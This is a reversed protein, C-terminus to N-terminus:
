PTSKILHILARIGRLLEQDESVKSVAKEFENCVRDVSDFYRRSESVFHSRIGELDEQLRQTQRKQELSKEEMGQQLDSLKYELSDLRQLVEQRRFEPIECRDSLETLKKKQHLYFAGVPRFVTSLLFFASFWYGLNGGTYISTGAAALAALGHLLLCLLLLRPVLNEIYQRDSDTVEQGSATKEDQKLRLNRAEFYLDWPRSLIMILGSLGCFGIVFNLVQHWSFWHLHFGAGLFAFFVLTSLFNAM